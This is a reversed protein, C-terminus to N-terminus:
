ADGGPANVEDSALATEIEEVLKVLESVPVPMHYQHDGTAVILLCTGELSSGGPDLEGLVQDVADGHVYGLYWEGDEYFKGQVSHSDLVKEKSFHISSKHTAWLVAGNVLTPDTTHLRGASLALVGIGKVLNPDNEEGITTMRPNM